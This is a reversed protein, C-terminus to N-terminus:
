EYRLADVPNASATRYSQLSLTVFAVFMALAAAIIFMLPNIADRYVFSGLWENVIFFSLISAIVAAALVLALISKALLLIIQLSSAGLVKRVGIEKTRQETTFSALGFLGLCSIFVCLASFLGTLRMINQDSTYLQDLQVDLFEFEFPHSPDFELMLERLFELTAPLENGSVNLVLTQTALARTNAPADRFDNNTAFMVLTGVEEYLSDYHFDEVVGVVRGMVNGTGGRIPQGIPQSWGMERVLAQNVVLSRDIDTLLKQSLRRGEVLPVDLTQLFDEGIQMVSTPFTFTEGSDLTFNLALLGSQGGPLNSTTSVGLINPNQALENRLAPVAEIVDAGRLPILLKNEKDFGLSLGAIYQMQNAMLLTSSIIGISITFQLLVLLQRLKGSGTKSSTSNSALATMPAVSSLYFAPYLGSLLGVAASLVILAGLIQPEFINALVVEIDLLRDLLNLDILFYIAALAVVLAILVFFLSESLFQIVLQGREAGLVKRMGVEKSRKMSRATALNVYNICAVFLIFLAVAIFGYIYLINGTPLDFALGGDLHVDALNQAWYRVVFDLNFERAMAAIRENSFRSFMRDFDDADFGDRMRVYTFGSINGLSRQYEIPSPPTEERLKMSFLVDYKLHTNDPLDAFVLAIRYQEVDSSVTQGIPNEDGFYTQAFRRSVAIANPDELAGEASGQLIRHNFVEFVNTDVLYTNDWYYTDLENRLVTKQGGAPTSFRVFSEVLEPNDLKLLPGLGQSSIAATEGNGAFSYENAIRYINPHDDFHQDYGLENAVYLGLVICCGIGLALGLVNILAYLKERSLNRLTIKLYTSFM